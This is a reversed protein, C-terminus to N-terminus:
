FQSFSVPLQCAYCNFVPQKARCVTRRGTAQVAFQEDEQPVWPPFFLSNNYRIDVEYEVTYPYVKYYFHHFKRRNDDMLNGGGVASIDQIDKAKLKKVLKGSADFLSGEISRVQQLQDYDEVFAANDDGAENLITLAYKKKLITEGTSIVEFRIDEMRKVVNSNVLLEAPIASSAYPADAANGCLCVFLAALLLFNNKM